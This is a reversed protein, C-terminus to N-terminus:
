QGRDSGPRGRPARHPRTLAPTGSRMTLATRAPMVAATGRASFRELGYAEPRAWVRPDAGSVNGRPQSVTFQAGDPAELEAAGLSGGADRYERVVEATGGAVERGPAERETM